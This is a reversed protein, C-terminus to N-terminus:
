SKLNECRHDHLTREEPICRWTTWHFDVSMESPYIAEMKLASSYALRSIMKFSCAPLPAKCGLLCFQRRNLINCFWTIGDTYTVVKYLRVLYVFFITQIHEINASQIISWIIITKSIFLLVCMWLKSIIAMYGFKLHLFLDRFQQQLHVLMLNRPFWRGAHFRYFNGPTLCNIHWELSKVWRFKFASIVPLM